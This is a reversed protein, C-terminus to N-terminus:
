DHCREQPSLTACYKAHALRVADAPHSAEAEAVVELTLPDNIQVAWLPEGKSLRGKGFLWYVDPPLKALEVAALQLEARNPYAYGTNMCNECANSPLGTYRGEGCYGCFQLAQIAERHTM